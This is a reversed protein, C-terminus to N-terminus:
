PSQMKHTFKLIIFEAPRVVAMGIELHLRGDLIDQSTMTTGLGCKVYFAEKERAGALAGARWKATLYAEIMSRVKAWTNADNPEFVVWKTSEGISEEVMILFRRVPVYRWENDNGALTRAGWVLTGKGDFYRIANISKGTTADENLTGQFQDDISVVPEIVNALKVNAPAKWVGRRTDVDTYIGAVASSPPLIVRAERIKNAIFNYLMTNSSKISAMTVENASNYRVFVNDERPSIQHTLSTSIFPYYAAGYELSSTGFYNRNASLQRDTLAIDGNLVDLVAFRDRLSNCQHLVAQVLSQFQASQLKVAEPIVILTPEDIRAVANLGDQLGYKLAPDTKSSGTLNVVSPNNHTGVSVVFCHSGGNEFFMKMAYWFIYDPDPPTFRSVLFGGQRDDSVDLRIADFACGGFYREFEVIGTIKLPKLLLDNDKRKRAKATYGVFAPIATAVETVSPPSISIDKIYVDPGKYKPM